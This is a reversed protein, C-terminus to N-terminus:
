AKAPPLGDETAEAGESAGDHSGQSEAAKADHAQGSRARGQCGGIEKIQWYNPENAANRIQLQHVASCCAVDDNDVLM